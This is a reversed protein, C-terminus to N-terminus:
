CLARKSEVSAAAEEHPRRQLKGLKDAEKLLKETNKKDLKLSYIDNIKTIVINLSFPIGLCLPGYAMFGAFASTLMSIFVPVGCFTMVLMAVFCLICLTTASM